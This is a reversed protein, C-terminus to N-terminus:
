GDKEGTVRCNELVLMLNNEDAREIRGEVRYGPYMWMPPTKSRLGPDDAVAFAEQDLQIIVGQPYFMLITGVVNKGPPYLLKAKNWAEKYPMVAKRWIENFAEPAIEEDGEFLEVETEILHFDPAVSVLCQGDVVSVQRYAVMHADIEFYYVENEELGSAKIYKM